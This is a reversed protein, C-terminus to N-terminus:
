LPPGRYAPPSSQGSPRFIAPGTFNPKVAIVQEATEFSITRKEIPAGVFSLTMTCCDPKSSEVADATEQRNGGAPDCHAAKKQPRHDESAAIAEMASQCYAVCVAGGANLCVFAVLFIAIVKNKFSLPHM